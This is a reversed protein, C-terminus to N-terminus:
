IEEGPEAENGRKAWVNNIEYIERPVGNGAVRLQLELLSRSPAWGIKLVGEPTYKDAYAFRKMDEKYDYMWGKLEFGAQELYL